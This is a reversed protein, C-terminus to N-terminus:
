EAEKLLEAVRPSLYGSLMDVVAETSYDYYANGNNVSIRFGGDFSDGAKLTVGSLMRSKLGALVSEELAKLSDSNLIVAIDETEPKKAWSEVVNVILQGLAESSYVGSVKEGTVAKLERSVSERFSILLNRGANRLAAEGSAVMRENESKANALIRDAQSQADAIIKEAEARATGLISEAESEAAKVGDERIQDILEKLQIEM